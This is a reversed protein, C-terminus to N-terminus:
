LFTLVIPFATLAVLHTSQATRVIAHGGYTFILSSVMSGLNSIGILRAYFYVFILILLYHFLIFYNFAAVEPLLYFFFLSIPYYLGAMYDGLLPYGCFLEPTWLPFKGQHLMRGVYVRLQFENSRLDSSFFIGRLFLIDSFYLLFFIFLLILPLNVKFKDKLTPISM